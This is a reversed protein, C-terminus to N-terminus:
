FRYIRGNEEIEVGQVFGLAGPRPPEEGRSAVGVLFNASRVEFM